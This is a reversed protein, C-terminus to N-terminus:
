DSKGQRNRLEYIKDAKITATVRYKYEANKAMKGTRWGDGLM